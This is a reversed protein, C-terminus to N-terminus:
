QKGGAGLTHLENHIVCSVIHESNWLQQRPIKTVGPAEYDYRASTLTACIKM